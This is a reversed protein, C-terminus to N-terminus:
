RRTRPVKKEPQHQDHLMDLIHYALEEPDHPYEALHLEYDIEERRLTWVFAEAYSIEAWYYEREVLRPDNGEGHWYGHIQTKGPVTAPDKCYEVILKDEKISPGGNREWKIRVSRSSSSIVFWYPAPGMKSWDVHFDPDVKEFLRAYTAIQEQFEAMYGLVLDFGDSTKLLRERGEQGKRFAVRKAIEDEVERRVALVETQDAITTYRGISINATPQTQFKARIQEAIEEISFKGGDCWVAHDPIWIPKPYTLDMRILFPLPSNETGLYRDCIADDELKTYGTKGWPPRHVIVQLKSDSRFASRMPGLASSGTLEQHREPYFFSRYEPLASVLQNVFGVDAATLSFAIDYRPEPAPM